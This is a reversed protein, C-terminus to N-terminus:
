ECVSQTCKGSQCDGAALCKAGSACKAGCNGGCQRDIDSPLCCKGGVCGFDRCDAGVSCGQGPACHNACNGNCGPGCCTGSTCVQGRCDADVACVAADPCPVGCDGGCRRDFDTPTCCTGSICAGYKWCDGDVGCSQAAAAPLVLRHLGGAAILAVFVFRCISRKFPQSM